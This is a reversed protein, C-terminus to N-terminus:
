EINKYMGSIIRCRDVVDNTPESTSLSPESVSQCSYLIGILFEFKSLLQIFKDQQVVNCVCSCYTLSESIRCINVNTSIKVRTRSIKVYHM